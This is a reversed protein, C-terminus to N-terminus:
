HQVILKRSITQEGAVLQITFIGNDLQSSQIPLLQDGALNGFAREGVLRGLADFIRMSVEASERLSLRINAKESAPNPSLEVSIANVPEKSDISLGNAFAEDLSIGSANLVTGDPGLIFSIVHMNDIDNSPQIEYAFNAVYKVGPAVTFPLSNELGEWGGLIAVGVHDYVMLAAPVPNPLLEFGGMIGQAGGAYSNVQAWDSTTGNLGDETLVMNFRYDDNLFETFEAEASLQLVTGSADWAAGNKLLVQPAEIISELFPTEMTSPNMVTTRNVIVNPFGTFGPFATLGADYDPVMMPDNNHVAIGVFHDPYMASMSDMWVAGRPCWTCWTGTAEEVLVAKGPAPTYGTVPAQIENNLPEGDIGANVNSVTLIMSQDGDAFTYAAPLNFAHVGLTPVNVGTINKTTSAAGNSLTLDFSTLPDSGLNRVEGAVAITTGTLGRTRSNVTFMAADNAFAPVFPTWSYSFDDIYYGGNSGTPGTAYFNISAIKNLPNAFKGASVGDIFVEWENSTIDVVLHFEFWQANPYVGGTLLPVSNGNGNINFGGTKTFYFDAAWKQGPTSEAQLNFYGGKNPSVFMWFKLDLDGSTYAGGFKCLIDMPGANAAAALIKMSKTGSHAQETVVSADEGAVQGSWTQWTTSAAGIKAGAAYSEFDDSFMSQGIASFAFFGALFLTFVKKM